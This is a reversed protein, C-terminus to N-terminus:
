ADGGLIRQARVQRDRMVALTRVLLRKADQEREPSEPLPRGCRDCMEATSTDDYTVGRLSHGAAFCEAIFDSTCDLCLYNM